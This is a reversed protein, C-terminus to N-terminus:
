RRRRRRDELQRMFDEPDPTIINGYFNFSDGGGSLAAQTSPNNHITGSTSPTFLEPGREGVLYPTNAKVMGGGANGAARLGYRSAVPTNQAVIADVSNTREGFFEQGFVAKAIADVQNLLDIANQAARNIAMLGLTALQEAAVKAKLLGGAIDGGTVIWLLGTMAAIALGLPSLLIEIGGTLATVAVGAGSIGAGVLAIIPGAVVLAGTIMVLTSFLEPNQGIWVGLSDIMPNINETLLTQIRPNLVDGIDHALGQIKSTFLDYAANQNQVAATSATLGAIGSVFTENFKQYDGALLGVAGQLAESSGLAQTLKDTSGGLAASLANTAGYLGLQEIAASGSEFGMAKLGATMDANPKLFANMVGLLQTSATAATRNQTTLYSTSSALQDYNIGLTNALSTNAGMYTAFEDMTGVGMSTTRTLVDTVFASDEAAYGYANMVGVVAKTSSQLDGQGADTLAIAANLISMHKTPDQVASAVTYMASSLAVEGYRSNRGMNRLQESTKAIEENSQGTVAQVNLMNSEFDRSVNVAYGLSAGVPAMAVTMQTGFRRASGGLLELSSGFSQAQREASKLGPTMEDKLSLLGFLSAVQIAAM